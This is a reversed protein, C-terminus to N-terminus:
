RGGTLRVVHATGSEGRVIEIPMEYAQELLDPRLVEDPTGARVAGRHFLAVHTAFEEALEIEHTVFMVTLGEERNLHALFDVFGEKATLDLGSTPEDAVILIPKRILARAVLARQRQGGSLSWYDWRQKGELGVQELAWGLPDDRKPLPPLGVRGLRVFEEVTTPLSPNPDCRQPVFGIGKQDKLDSHTWLLGSLPSVLGLVSKVFTSKGQGNPGIIFWFEGKRIELNLDHVVRTKGYGLTLNEARILSLDNNM